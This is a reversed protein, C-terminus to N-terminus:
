KELAASITVNKKAPLRLQRYAPGHPSETTASRALSSSLRRIAGPLKLTIEQAARSRLSAEVTAKHMNWEVSIEIGGRCLIGRASGVPWSEPLAPLLKVMGPASYVLMELVAASLGFNADIQFPAWGSAYLTIGQDRWDNHYTFLNPGVCARTMLEMCELARNGDGLRAYINAMHALSWGTQSTLGIVLRKEVAVRMADFLRPDSEPSIELGPFLPYIHSQHRHHYNDPLAPHIWEKIAGDENIEYDPLKQLMSKWRRVGAKDIGLLECADCLNGLVERAIAVDMTANITALSANPISPVNEPSLSPSFMLKGNDDEILFDEYFLATQKLFPVAHEKLFKRDGTFLWYDNFLQALWGAAATWLMWPGSYSALGHTTQALPVYIGRCGYVTQANTRYDQLYSEFYDFYPMTVEPLNGPLAQWYNMQINEDNHYDAQWPPDYAGNWVGQLNAPLGGPRSSCILLYRGYEFMKRILAAPVDGDYALMLLEENSLDAADGAELDLQMRLFMERHLKAHRKLLANYDPALQDIKRKLAANSKPVDTLKIIIVAQDAGAIQIIDSNSSSTKGGKLDVRAVGSYGGGADYRAQITFWQKGASMAFSIPAEASAVEGKKAGTGTVRGHPILAVRCNVSGAKSGSIRMVVVHDARSVFLDRRFRTGSDQWTVSAVGTEFDVSRRYNTFAGQTDTAIVLDFAPHYPDPHGLEGGADRQKADLFTAAEQYRGQRLLKRLEPIAGSIDSIKPKRTRLFLNDHNLIVQESRIGGFVLAGISGNGAPLADQWRTAPQRISMGHKKSHRAM